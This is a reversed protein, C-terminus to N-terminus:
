AMHWVQPGLVPADVHVGQTVLRRQICLYPVDCVALGPAEPWTYTWFTGWVCIWLAHTYYHSQLGTPTTIISVVSITQEAISHSGPFFKQLALNYVSFRFLYCIFGSSTTCLYVCPKLCIKHVLLTLTFASVVGESTRRLSSRDSTYLLHRLEHIM